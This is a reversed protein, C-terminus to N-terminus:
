RRAKGADVERRPLGNGGPDGAAAAHLGAFGPLPRQGRFVGLDLWQSATAVKARGLGLSVHRNRLLAMIDVPALRNALVSVAQRLLRGARSRILPTGAADDLPVSFRALEACIRRALTQDPAIIAVSKDAELAEHVCVAIARAEEEPTRAVLLSLGEAGVALAPGMDTAIQQWEATAEALGLAANFIP